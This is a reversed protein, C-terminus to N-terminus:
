QTPASSNLVAETQVAARDLETKVGAGAAIARLANAFSRTLSRSRHAAVPGDAGAQCRSAGLDLHRWRKVRRDHIELQRGTQGCVACVRRRRRLHVTVVVGEASFSVDVVSAGPLRLLRKFATTVRM